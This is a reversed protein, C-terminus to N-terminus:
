SRCSSFSQVAEGITEFATVAEHGPAVAGVPLGHEMAEAVPPATPIPIVPAGLTDHIASTEVPPRAHNLVIRLLGCDLERALARTRMTDALTATEETTVLICADAAYLPLGADARLGSPTDVIVSGYRAEIADLTEPLVRPDAARAGSLSHGCPLLRVPLAPDTRVAQVPPTEGALVDHLTPGSSRPLDAMTLDGDVLVGGTVAALNLAVTSKGVGGKGGAIAIIM